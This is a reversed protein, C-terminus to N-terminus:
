AVQKINEIARCSPNICSLFRGFKGTREVTNENCKKCLTKNGLKNKYASFLEKSFINYFKHLLETHTIKGEAIKDLEEEVKSTFDYKMFSFIGALYNTIEKGLETPRYTNGVKEVYNRNSIKKIIEAFTAPRGLQKTELEKLLTADNFRPPPQTHKQEVKVEILVVEEKETLVPIEIKGADVEGFIELYDKDVLAKGSSKFVIKNDEKNVIRVNLTNWTSPQMQSAVFSKWIVEYVIKDDGTIYGKGPIVSVDTPRICEHAGQATGKTAYINKTKPLDFKNKKIWERVDTIAEDSARPSDTRIYTIYGSEYLSQASKMTQDPSMGQKALTQQLSATIMPPAPKEKKVQAKVKDIVFTKNAELYTKLKTTQDKNSLKEDYKAIFSQNEINTLKINCTWYEEPVFIEIEKERDVILGTAVSQVRGGSLHDGFFQMLMPSVTFGVVRDLIRRAEQSRVSNMDIEHKEKIGREIGAKTIENFVARYCPKGVSKLIEKVDFSIRDGERDQDSCLLIEDVKTAANILNDIVELKDQLLVYHPKFNNSIDIGMGHKGGKALDRIHGITAAVIYDAGLVEAIKKVKNPSEVIVLTKM